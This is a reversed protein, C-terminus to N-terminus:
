GLIDARWGNGVVTIVGRIVEADSCCYVEALCLGLEVLRAIDFVVGAKVAFGGIESGGIVDLIGVLLVPSDVVFGYLLCM